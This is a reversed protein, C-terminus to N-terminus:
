CCLVLLVCVQMHHFLGIFLVNCIMLDPLSTKFISTCLPQGYAKAMLVSFLFAVSTNGWIQCFRILGAFSDM